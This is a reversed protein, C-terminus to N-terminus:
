ISRMFNALLFYAFTNTTLSETIQTLIFEHSFEEILIARLSLM